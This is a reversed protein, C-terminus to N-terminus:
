LWQMLVDWLHKLEPPQNLWPLQKLYLLGLSHITYVSTQSKSAGQCFRHDWTSNSVHCFKPVLDGKAGLLLPWPLLLIPISTLPFCFRRSSTLNYVDPSLINNWSQSPIRSLDWNPSGFLFELPLSDLDPLISQRLYCGQNNNYYM